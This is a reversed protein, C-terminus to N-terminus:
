RLREQTLQRLLPLPSRDCRAQHYTAGVRRASSACREDFRALEELYARRISSADLILPEGTELPTFRTAGEFPFEREEGAMVQLVVLHWGQARMSAMGAWFPEDAELLDSIVLLLGRRSGARQGLRELAKSLTTEGGAKLEDLQATLARLTAPTPSSQAGELRADGADVSLSALDGARGAIYAACLGLWCGYRLKSVPEGPGMSASSDILVSLRLAREARLEKVLLRESRGSARWDVSPLSDGPRFNRHELFDGGGGGGRAAHEGLTVEEVLRHVQLHLSALQSLAEIPPSVTM